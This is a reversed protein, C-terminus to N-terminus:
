TGTAASKQDHSAVTHGYPHSGLQPAQDLVFTERNLHELKEAMEKLAERLPAVGEPSIKFGGSKAAEVLKATEASAQALAVADIAASGILSGINKVAGVTMQGPDAQFSM